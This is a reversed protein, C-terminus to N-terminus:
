DCGCSRRVVLRHDLVEHVTADGARRDALIAVAREAFQSVPQRITTLPPICVETNATGDFGVVALDDPITLGLRYAAFLVGFAQEDTACYVARPRDGHSLRDFAVAAAAQRAIPSRWVGTTVGDAHSATDTFGQLHQDPGAASPGLLITLDRYGHDLLHRTATAAAAVYDITLTSALAPDAIPHLAVTPIHARRLQELAAAPGTSILIVSDVQRAILTQCHRLEEAESLAADAILLMSGTTNVAREIARALEAFYPNCIDPVVLGVSRTEGRRLSRATANLQYGLEAAAQLVKEKTAPAVGRPGGNFVYSVVATSTGAREAVDRM